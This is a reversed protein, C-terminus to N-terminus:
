QSSGGIWTFHRSSVEYILTVTVGEIFMATEVHELLWNNTGVIKLDADFWVSSRSCAPCKVYLKGTKENYLSSNQAYWNWKVFLGPLSAQWWGSYITKAFSIQSRCVQLWDQLFQWSKSKCYCIKINFHM